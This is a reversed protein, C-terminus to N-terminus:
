CSEAEGGPRKDEPYEEPGPSLKGLTYRAALPMRCLKM